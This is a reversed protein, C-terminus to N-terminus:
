LDVFVYVYALREQGKAWFVCEPKRAALICVDGWFFLCMAMDEEKLALKQPVRISGGEGIRDTYTKARDAPIEYLLETASVVKSGSTTQTVNFVIKTWPTDCRYDFCFYLVVFHETSCTAAHKEHM